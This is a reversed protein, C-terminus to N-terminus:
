QGDNHRSNVCWCGSVSGCCPAVGAWMNNERRFNMHEAESYVLERLSAFSASQEVM